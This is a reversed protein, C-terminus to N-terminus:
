SPKKKPFLGSLNQTLSCKLIDQGMMQLCDATDFPMWITNQPPEWDMTTEPDSPESPLSQLVAAYQQQRLRYSRKVCRNNKLLNLTPGVQPIRLHVIKKAGSEM